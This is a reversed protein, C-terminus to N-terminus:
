LRGCAEYESTLDENEVGKLLDSEKSVFQKMKDAVQNQGKWAYKENLGSAFDHEDLNLWELSEDIIEQQKFKVNEYM